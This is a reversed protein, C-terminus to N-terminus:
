GVLLSLMTQTFKFACRITSISVQQVLLIYSLAVGTQSPSISFRAAVTLIAVVFTLTIGLFDVHIGLWRQNTVTLWYARSIM